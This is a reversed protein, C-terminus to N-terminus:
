NLIEEQVLFIQNLHLVPLAAIRKIVQNRMIVVLKHHNGKLNSIEYSILCLKNKTSGLLSKELM